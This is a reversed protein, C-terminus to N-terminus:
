TLLDKNNDKNNNKNDKNNNKNDKEGIVQMSKKKIKEKKNEYNKYEKSHKRRTPVGVLKEM